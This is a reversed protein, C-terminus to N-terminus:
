RAVPRSPNAIWESWSGAYLRAEGMGAYLMALINHISTVGSGCYFVAREEPIGGLLGEYYQRLAATPKFTGDPNLNNTYPASFAGPIHGAVPDITENEGRYRDAARADLVRYAPDKRMTEVQEVTVLLEPHSRVQLERGPKQEEGPRVPYGNKQWNQWGGDLVAAAEHGLWRLMWWVRVAALAGGMDDYIVVQVGPGIGLRGFMSAATDVAPWPHRGTVGQIVKSSLDEDLHAYVAGPIHGALYNRRGLGADALSFRADVVLWGTDQLHANADAASILTTYAM